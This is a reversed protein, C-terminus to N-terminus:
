KVSSAVAVLEEASLEQSMLEVVVGDQEWVVELLEEAPPVAAGPLHLLVARRGDLDVDEAMSVEGTAFRLASIGEGPGGFSVRYERLRLYYPHADGGPPGYDLDIYFPQPIWPPLDDYYVAKVARLEYGEPLSAPTLLEYGVLGEAAALDPLVEERTVQHEVGPQVTARPTVRVEIRGLRFVGMVEALAQQGVPSVGIAAIVLMLTLVAAAGAYSLPRWRRGRTTSQARQVRAWVRQRLAADPPELLRNLAALREVTARLEGEIGVAEEGRLLCDIETSLKEAALREAGNM